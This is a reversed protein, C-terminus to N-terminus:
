AETREKVIMKGDVDRIDMMNRGVIKPNVHALAEGQMTTVQVYLDRDVFAGPTKRFEAMSKERGNKKYYAIATKVLAQDEQNTGPHSDPLSAFPSLAFLVAFLSMGSKLNM